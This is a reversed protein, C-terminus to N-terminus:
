DGKTVIIENLKKYEEIEKEFQEIILQAKEYDCDWIKNFAISAGNYYLFRFLDIDDDSLDAYVTQMAIYSSFFGEIGKIKPEEIIQPFLYCLLEKQYGTMLSIGMEPNGKGVNISEIILNIGNIFASKYNKFIKENVGKYILDEIFKDWLSNILKMQM